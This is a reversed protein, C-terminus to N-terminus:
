QQIVFGFEFRLKQDPSLLERPPRTFPASSRFARVAEQDVDEFGRGASELVVTQFLEGNALLTVGLLTRLDHRERMVGSMWLRRLIRQPNWTLQIKRKMELYYGTHEFADANIYTGDGKPIEPFYENTANGPGRHPGTMESISKEEKGVGAEQREETRSSAGGPSLGSPGVSEKKVSQARYSLFRANKPKVAQGAAPADVIQRRAVNPPFEKLEVRVIDLARAVTAKEETRLFSLFLLHFFLSLILWARLDGLRETM